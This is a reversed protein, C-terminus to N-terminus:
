SRGCAIDAISFCVTNKAETNEINLTRDQLIKVPEEIPRFPKEMTEVFM